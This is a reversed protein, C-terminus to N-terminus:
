DCRCVKGLGVLGRKVKDRGMEVGGKGTGRILRPGTGELNIEEGGQGTRVLGM